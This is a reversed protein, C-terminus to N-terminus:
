GITRTKYMWVTCFYYVPIDCPIGDSSTRGRPLESWFCGDGYGITIFPFFSFSVLSLTASLFIFLCFAFFCFGWLRYAIASILCRKGDPGLKKTIRGLVRADFYVGFHTKTANPRRPEITLCEM